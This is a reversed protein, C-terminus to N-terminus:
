IDSLIDNRKKEYEADDIAKNEWLEKLLNLRKQIDNKQEVQPASETRERSTIRANSSEPAYLWWITLSCSLVFGVVTLLVFVLEFNNLAMMITMAIFFVISVGAAALAIKKM